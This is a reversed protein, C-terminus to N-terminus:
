WWSIMHHDWCVAMARATVICFVFIAPVFFAPGPLVVIAILGLQGVRLPCIQQVLAFCTTHTTRNALRRVAAATVGDPECTASSMGTSLPCANVAGRSHGVVAVAGFLHRLKYFAAGEATAGATSTPVACVRRVELIWISVSAIPPITVVARLSHFDEAILLNDFVHHQLV